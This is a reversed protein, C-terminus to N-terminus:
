ASRRSTRSIPSRTTSSTTTARSSTAPITTAARSMTRYYAHWSVGQTELQDILREHSLDTCGADGPDCDGNIGVTSGAMLEVYNPLSPYQWGYGQTFGAYQHV